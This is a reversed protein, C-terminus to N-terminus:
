SSLSESAFELRVFNHESRLPTKGSRVLACFYGVGGGFCTDEVVVNVSHAIPAHQSCVTPLARVADKLVVFAGRTNAPLKCAVHGM